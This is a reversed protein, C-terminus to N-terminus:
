IINTIGIHHKTQIKKRLFFFFALDHISLYSWWRDLQIFSTVNGQAKFCPYYFVAKASDREQFFLEYFKIM